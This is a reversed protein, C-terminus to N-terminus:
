KRYKLYTKMFTEKQFPKGHGPFFKACNTKEIRDWSKLLAEEDDAYPPYVGDIIHDVVTDGVIIRGSDLVICISGVTHGPTHIIKATFGFECLDYDDDIFHSSCIHNTPATTRM